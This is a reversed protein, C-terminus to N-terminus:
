RRRNSASSTLSASAPTLSPLAGTLGAASSTCVARCSRPSRTTATRCSSGASRKTVERVTGDYYLPAGTKKDRVLRTGESIWIRERTKHRYIESLFNAVQGNKVLLEHLEQRRGPDVYWESAIDNVAALLEAETEYGNLRVLSPNASIMRGDLTSRFVGESINDYLDRFAQEAERAKAFARHREYVLYALDCNIATQALVLLLLAAHSQFAVGSTHVGFIGVSGFTAVGFVTGFWFRRV